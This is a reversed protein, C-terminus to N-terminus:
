HSELERALSRELPTLPVDGCVQEPHGPGPGRLPGVPDESAADRLAGATAGPDLGTHVTGYAVLCRYIERLVRRPRLLDWM